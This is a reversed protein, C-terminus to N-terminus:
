SRKLIATEGTRPTRERRRRPTVAAASAARHPRRRRSEREARWEETAPEASGGTGRRGHGARARRAGTRERTARRGATARHGGRASGAGDDADAGARGARARRDIKGSAGAGTPRGPPPPAM